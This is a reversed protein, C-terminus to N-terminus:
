AAQDRLQEQWAVIDDEFWAIRHPGIKVPKPFTARAVWQQITSRAVPILDLVQKETLMTRPQNM